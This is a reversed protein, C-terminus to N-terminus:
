KAVIISSYLPINAANLRRNDSELWRIARGFENGNTCAKQDMTRVSSSLRRGMGSASVPYIEASHRIVVTFSKRSERPCPDHEGLKSNTQKITKLHTLIRTKNLTQSMSSRLKIATVENQLIGIGDAQTRHPVVVIFHNRSALSPTM